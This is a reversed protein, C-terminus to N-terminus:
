EPTQPRAVRRSPGRPRTVVKPAQGQLRAWDRASRRLLALDRNITSAAHRRARSRRLRALLAEDVGALLEDGAEDVLRRASARYRKMRGFDEAHRPMCQVAAASGLFQAVTCRQGGEPRRVTLSAM